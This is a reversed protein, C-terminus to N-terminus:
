PSLFNAGKREDWTQSTQRKTTDRTTDKRDQSMIEM